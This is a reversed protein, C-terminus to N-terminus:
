RQRSWLTARHHGSLHLGQVGPVAPQFHEGSADVQIHLALLVSPWLPHGGSGGGLRSLHQLRLLWEDDDGPCHWRVRQLGTFRWGSAQGNHQQGCLWWSQMARSCIWSGNVSRFGSSRLPLLWLDILLNGILYLWNLYFYPSPSFILLFCKDKKHFALSFKEDLLLLEPIHHVVSSDCCDVDLNWGHSRAKFLVNVLAYQHDIWHCVFEPSYTWLFVITVFTPKFSIWLM